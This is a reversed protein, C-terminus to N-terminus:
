EAPNALLYPYGGNVTGTEAWVSNSFGTPLGSQFQTTTLGTIGPDNAVNGAGKSPDGIGSSDLDWYANSTNVQAVDQGLLGGVTASSGATVAGTSYSRAITPAYSGNDQNSGALGGVVANNGGTVAGIAYTDQLEGGINEGVLGGITTNDGGTVTGTSYSQSVIGNCAGTCDGANKGVLGGVASSAGGSVAVNARSQTVFGGSNDGVLSGIMANPASSSIQGTVSVHIIRANSLGAIAGITQSSGSGQINVSRLNLDRIVANPVTVTDNGILGVFDSMTSDQIQLNSITNGLGELNVGFHLVPATTYIKHIANVNGCLAVYSFSNGVRRLDGINHVLGYTHGNIILSNDTGRFTVRGKKSFFLDGGSGGDNTLMTLAGSGAVDLVKTFSLSRYADLTLRGTSVWSLSASVEIDKAIKGGSVTVDGSALLTTLDTVNLVAKAATATCVGGTCSMNTTPKASIQVAAHASFAFSAFLAVIFTPTLHSKRQSNMM